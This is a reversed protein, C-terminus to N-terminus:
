VGGRLLVLEDVVVPGRPLEVRERDRRADFRREDAVDDASRDIRARRYTDAGDVDRLRAEGVDHLAGLEALLTDREPLGELVSHLDADDLAERAFARLADRHEAE